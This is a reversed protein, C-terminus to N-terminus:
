VKMIMCVISDGDSLESLTTHVEPNLHKGKHILKLQDHSVNFIHKAVQYLENPHSDPSVEVPHSQGKLNKLTIKM